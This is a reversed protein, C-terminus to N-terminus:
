QDTPQNTSQNIQNSKIKQNIPQTTPQDTSQNISQQNIPQNIRYEIEGKSVSSLGCNVIGCHLRPKGSRHNATDSVQKLKRAL